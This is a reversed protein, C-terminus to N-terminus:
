VKGCLTMNRRPWSLHYKHIYKVAQELTTCRPAHYRDTLTFFHFNKVDSPRRVLHVVIGNFLGREFRQHYLVRDYIKQEAKTMAWPTLCCNFGHPSCKHTTATTAVVSMRTTTSRPPTTATAKMHKAAFSALKWWVFPKNPEVDTIEFEDSLNCLYRKIRPLTEECEQKTGKFFIAGGSVSQNTHSVIYYM